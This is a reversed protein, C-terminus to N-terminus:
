LRYKWIFLDIEQRVASLDKAITVQPLLVGKKNSADIATLIDLLRKSSGELIDSVDSRFGAYEEPSSRNPEFTYIQGKKKRKPSRGVQKSSEVSAEDSDEVIHNRASSM